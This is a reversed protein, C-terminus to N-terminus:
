ARGWNALRNRLYADVEADLRKLDDLDVSEVVVRSAAAQAAADVEEPTVPRPFLPRSCAPCPCGTGPRDRLGLVALHPRGDKAQLGCVIGEYTRELRELM